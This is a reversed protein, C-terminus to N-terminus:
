ASELRYLQTTTDGSQRGMRGPNLLKSPHYFGMVVMTFFMLMSDFVYMFVEHSILYGANGQAYEILRFISRVLILVSSVYLVGMVTVWTTETWKSQGKILSRETPNHHIRWHFITSTVIFVSFFALQVALGVITVTEGTNMASLSGSAMIGGGAAQMVFAVVDGIVFILTLWRTPVISLAEADLYKILRGLTMYISAAYLPPALLIMITGISYIPISNTDNHALARCIYGIVQFVGGFVFVLFYWSRLRIVQYLHYLTILAFLILFLVAAGLSPTYRYLKFEFMGETSDMETSTSSHHHCIDVLKRKVQLRFIKQIEKHFARNLYWLDGLLLFVLYFHALITYSFGEAIEVQGRPKLSTIFANSVMSPWSAVAAEELDIQFDRSASCDRGSDSFHFVNLIRMYIEELKDITNAHEQSPNDANGTQTDSSSQPSTANAENAAPSSSLTAAYTRLMSLSHTAGQTFILVVRSGYTLRPVRALSLTHRWDDNAYDYHLMSRLRSTKLTFWHEQLVSTLGRVLHLWDTFPTEYIEGNSLGLETMNLDRISLSAFAFAVILLSGCFVYEATSASMDSLAERFGELGRQHHEIVRHLDRIASNDISSTNSQNDDKNLTGTRAMDSEYLTHAGALALLLHMLYEKQAAMDPIVQQWILMRRPHLSMKKSTQLMFKTLLNMDAMNIIRGHLSPEPSGPLYFELPQLPNPVPAVRRPNRSRRSDESDVSTPPAPPPFSCSEGRFSCAGCVPRVEDCKVRRQKCTYCGNRSKLHRARHRKEYRARSGSQATPTASPSPTDSM